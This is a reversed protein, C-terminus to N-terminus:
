RDRFQELINVWLGQAKLILEVFERIAGHGGCYSSVWKAEDIVEACGDKPTASIQVRRMVPIDFLDDGMYAVETWKLNHRTLVDDLIEAKDTFGGHVEEIDLQQARHKVTASLRGTILCFKIGARKAMIIGFGDRVHFGKTETGDPNTYIIGDTMVGDVDLAIMKIKTALQQIQSLPLSM